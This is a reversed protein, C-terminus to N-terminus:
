NQAAPKATITYMPVVVEQDDAFFVPAGNTEGLKLESVHGQTIFTFKGREWGESVLSLTYEVRNDQNHTAAALRLSVRFEHDKYKIIEDGLFPLERRQSLQVKGDGVSSQFGGTTFARTELDLMRNPERNLNELNWALPLDPAWKYILLKTKVQYEVKMIAHFDSEVAQSIVSSFLAVSLLVKKM